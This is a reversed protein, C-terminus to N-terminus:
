GGLEASWHPEGVSEGFCELLHAAMAEAAGPRALDLAARSMSDLAERDCLLDEILRRLRAPDLEREEVLLAAGARVADEANRRQQRDRHWPYPVFVAPVGLELCEAVTSAGARSLVLDAAAYARGIRPLFGVVAARRGMGAYAQRVGEVDAPGACHLVQFALDPCLAVGELVRRNLGRAGQSGGIVLLTAVGSSLEFDRPTGRAHLEKRLPTGTVRFRRDRPLRELARDTGLGVGAAMRSLFRTARGPVANCDMLYVPLRLTRAALTAPLSAYGGLGVVGRAGLRRLQRRARGVALAMRAPFLARSRDARPCVMELAEFAGDIREVDGRDHPVLFVPEVGPLARAVALAPFLHGGTGGGAFVIVKRRLPAIM